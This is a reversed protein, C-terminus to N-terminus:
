ISIHNVNEVSWNQGGLQNLEFNLVKKKAFEHLVRM